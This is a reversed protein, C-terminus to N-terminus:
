FWKSVFSLQVNAYRPIEDGDYEGKDSSVQAALDLQFWKLGFGLGATFVTGADSEQINQMAGGRVSLWSFPHFNIGGGIMQADYGPIFTENSTIDADFAVTIRDGWLNLAVGARVQPDIEIEGGNEMDFTPTNLNKAVLGFAINSFMKPKLLFGIDVGYATDDEAADKMDDLIDESESDIDIQFNLTQGPMIKLSAGCNLTGLPTNFARGYSLPIEVYSVGTLQLHTVGNHIADELSRLNYQTNDTYGSFQDTVEDYELYYTTGQFDYEFIIDLYDPNIVPHTVLEAIGYAGFGFHGMQFGLSFSPMLTLSSEEALGLANLESKILSINDKSTQDIYGTISNGSILNFVDTINTTELAEISTELGDITEDIDIDALTDIHDAIDNEMVGVGVSLSMQLKNSKEALLAPNYYPAYTGKASAVGAGGMSSAEFGLPQFAAAHASIALFLAAAFTLLAILIKKM